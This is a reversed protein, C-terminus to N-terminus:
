NAVAEASDRREVFGPPPKVKWRDHLWLWQAPYHRVMGEIADNIECMISEATKGSVTTDILDGLVITHTDDSERVCFIPQIPAGTRMGIVAPGAVTGTVHGFFPVFVEDSKQDPLMVVCLDPERRMRRLLVGAAEGRGVIEYGSDMRMKNITDAIEPNNDNRVVVVFKFGDVALRRAMLEFNGFHASVGIFAKGAHSLTQLCQKDDVSLAVMRRIETENLHSTIPFEIASKAFNIFVQRTIERKESRTLLEGFALDLNSLAMKRYRHSLAFGIVGLRHGIALMWNLPLIKGLRSISDMSRVTFRQWLVKGYDKM